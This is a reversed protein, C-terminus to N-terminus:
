CGSREAAWFVPPGIRLAGDVIPYFTGDPAQASIQLAFSRYYGLGELRQQNSRFEAEPFEDGLTAIVNSDLQPRRSEPLEAIGRERLFRESGGLRHARIGQRIEDRTVGAVALAAEVAMMDTFEVLTNQFAFGGATLIRFLRLYVRVHEQLHATEFRFSGTDRGATVLGFLRFHPSYGAVDFPQLRIVRHSACLRVVDVSSRRRAACPIPVRRCRLTNNADRTYDTHRSGEPGFGLGDRYNSRWASRCQSHNNCYHQEPEDGRAHIGFLVSM